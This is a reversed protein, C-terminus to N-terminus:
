RHVIPPTCNHLYSMGSAIDKSISLKFNWNLEEFVRKEDKTEHILDFLSGRSAFETVLSLPNFSMGILKLLNPHDLCSMKSAEKRLEKFEKTDILSKVAVVKGELVGKYVIAFSGKGIQTKGEIQDLSIKKVDSVVIDPCLSSLEVPSDGLPCELFAKGEAAREECELLSFLHFGEKETEHSLTRSSTHRSQTHQSNKLRKHRISSADLSGSESISDSDSLDMKKICHPCPIFVHTDVNLWDALLNDVIECINRLLLERHNGQVRIHLVDEDLWVKACTNKHSVLMEDKYYQEAHASHFLRVMLRGFFEKPVFALQYLRRLEDEEGQSKFKSLISDEFFFGQQKLLSASPSQELLTPIISEGEYIQEEKVRSKESLPFIIEFAKLLSLLQPHLSKPYSPQTWIHPLFKHQLIGKKM